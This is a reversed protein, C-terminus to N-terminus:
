LENVGNHVYDRLDRAVRNLVYGLLARIRRLLPTSDGLQFFYLDGELPVQCLANWGLRTESDVRLPDPRMCEDYTGKDFVRFFSQNRDVDVRRHLRDMFPALASPVYRVTLEVVKRAPASEEQLKWMVVGSM